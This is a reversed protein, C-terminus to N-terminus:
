SDSSTAIIFCIITTKIEMKREAGTKPASAFCCSPSGSDFCTRCFVRCITRAPMGSFRRGQAFGWDMVHDLWRLERLHFLQTAIREIFLGILLAILNM